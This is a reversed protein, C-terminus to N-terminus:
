SPNGGMGNKSPRGRKQWTQGADRSCKSPHQIDRKKLTKHLMISM